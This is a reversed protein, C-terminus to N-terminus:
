APTVRTVQRADIREGCQACDWRPELRHGCAHDLVMPPGSDLPLHRDGWQMLSLIVPYLDRGAATLVYEYRPPHDSYPRRELIGHDVLTRLRAALTDRPAGTNRVMEEFRRCGLFAERIALLAWKEGVVDLTRAVSCTRPATVDSM